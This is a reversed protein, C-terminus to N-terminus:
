NKQSFTWPHTVSASNDGRLRVGVLDWFIFFHMFRVVWAAHNGYLTVLLLLLFFTLWVVSIVSEGFNQPAPLFDSLYDGIVWTVEYMQPKVQFCPAEDSCLLWILTPLAVSPIKSSVLSAKSSRIAALFRSRSNKSQSRSSGLCPPNLKESNKMAPPFSLFFFFFLSSFLLVFAQVKVSNQFHLYWQADRGAIHASFHRNPPSQCYCCTGRLQWASFLSRNMNTKHFAFQQTNEWVSSPSFPLRRRNPAGPLRLSCSCRDPVYTYIHIYPLKQTAGSVTACKFIQALSRAVM